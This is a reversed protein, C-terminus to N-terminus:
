YLIVIQILINTGRFIKQICTVIITNTNFRIWTSFAKNMCKFRKKSCFYTDLTAMLMLVKGNSNINSNMNYNIVIVKNNIKTYNNRSENHKEYNIIWKKLKIALYPNINNDNSVLDSFINKYKNFM